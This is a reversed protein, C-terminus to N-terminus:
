WSRFISPLRTSIPSRAASFRHNLPGTHGVQTCFPVGLECCEAYVPYFRAHAPPLEWLWPLVRIAKFGLKRVCRRMERVAEMPRSIDASGVRVLRQPAERVFGAVEDNSIMTGRPSVWASILSVSVDAEDMARLTESLPMELPRQLSGGRDRRTWRRLSDFIPDQTPASHSTAGM